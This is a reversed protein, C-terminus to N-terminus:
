LYLRQRGPSTAMDRVAFPSSVFSERHQDNLSQRLSVGASEEGTLSGNGLAGAWFLGHFSENTM